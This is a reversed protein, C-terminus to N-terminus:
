GTPLPFQHLYKVFPVATQWEITDIIIDQTRKVRELALFASKIEQSEHGVLVIINDEQLDPDVINTFHTHNILDTMLTLAQHSPASPNYDLELGFLNKEFFSDLQVFQSGTNKVGTITGGMIITVLIIGLSWAKM